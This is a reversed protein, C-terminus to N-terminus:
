YSMFPLCILSSKVFIQIADGDSSTLDELFVCVFGTESTHLYHLALSHAHERAPQGWAPGM